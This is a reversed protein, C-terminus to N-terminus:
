RPPACCWLQKARVVACELANEAHGGVGIPGCQRM